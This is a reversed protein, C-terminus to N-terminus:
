HFCPFSFYFISGLTSPFCNFFAYSHIEDADSDTDKHLAIYLVAHVSFFIVVLMVTVIWSDSPSLFTVFFFVTFIIINSLSQYHAIHSKIFHTWPLIWVCKLARKHSELSFVQHFLFRDLELLPYLLACVMFANPFFSTCGCVCVSNVTVSSSPMHDAKDGVWKM